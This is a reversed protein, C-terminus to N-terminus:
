IVINLSTNNAFLRLNNAIVCSMDNIDLSFLFPGLISGQPVSSYTTRFSLSYGDLVVNQRRDM